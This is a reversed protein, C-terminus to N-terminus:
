KRDFPSIRLMDEARIAGERLVVAEGSSVDVITSPLASPLEGADVAFDVLSAQTGLQALILEISRESREGHRNASTTTFPMRLERALDLCFANAPIRIGITDLGRAIGTDIGAKKKLILTLSGPLFQAAFTEALESVQGYRSATAMDSVVCHMPKHPDSGKIAHIKAVADDSLADAGLGYLTDTPYLIVGGSALIQAARVPASPDEARVIEM